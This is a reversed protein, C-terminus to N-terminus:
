QSSQWSNTQAHNGQWRNMTRSARTPAPLGWPPRETSRTPVHACIAPTIVAAGYESRNVRCSESAFWRQNGKFFRQFVNSEWSPPMRFRHNQVLILFSAFRSNVRRATLNLAPSPPTRTKHTRAYDNGGRDNRLACLCVVSGAIRASIGRGLKRPEAWRLTRSTATAACQSRM